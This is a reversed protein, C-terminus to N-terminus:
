LKGALLLVLVASEISLASIVAALLAVLRKERERARHLLFWTRVDDYEVNMIVERIRRM